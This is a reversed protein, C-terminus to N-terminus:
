TTCWRSDTVVLSGGPSVRVALGDESAATGHAITVGDLTLNSSSTTFDFARRTMASTLGGNDIISLGAGRGSISMTSLVDLDNYATDSGETGVRTLVYRGAPLQIATATGATNAYNVAERLSVDGFALNADWDDATTSVIIMGPETSQWNTYNTSGDVNNHDTDAALVTFRFRFEGGADGDGSPLTASGADALSIPNFFEGDDM